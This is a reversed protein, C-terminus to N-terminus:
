GRGRELAGCVARRLPPRAARVRQLRARLRFPAIGGASNGVERKILTGAQVQRFATVMSWKIGRQPWCASGRPTKAHTVGIPPFQMNFRAPSIAVAADTAASAITADAMARGAVTAAADASEHLFPTEIPM